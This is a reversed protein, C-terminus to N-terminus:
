EDAEKEPDTVINMLEQYFDIVEAPPTYGAAGWTAEQLSDTTSQRIFYYLNGPENIALKGLNLGQIVKFIKKTHKRKLPELVTTDKQLGDVKFLQGDPLIYYATVAGTFGGGSGFVIHDAAPSQLSYTPRNCSFAAILCAAGVFLTIPKLMLKSKM